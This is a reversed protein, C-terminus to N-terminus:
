VVATPRTVCPTGRLPHPGGFHGGFRRLPRTQAWILRAQPCHLRTLNTKAVKDALAAASRAKGGKAESRLNAPKM